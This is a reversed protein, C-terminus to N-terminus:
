FFFIQIHIRVMSLMLLFSRRFKILLESMKRKWDKKTSETNMAPASLDEQKQLQQQQTQETNIKESLEVSTDAKNDKSIDEKSSSAPLIMECSDSPQLFGLSSNETLATTSSPQHSLMPQITSLENEKLKQLERDYQIKKKEVYDNLYDLAIDFVLFFVIGITFGGFVKFNGNLM